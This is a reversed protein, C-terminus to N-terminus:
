GQAAAARGAVFRAMRDVTSVEDLVVDEDPIKVGFRQEIFVLVRTLSMSDFGADFLDEDPALPAKRLLIENVIHDHLERRVTDLSLTM